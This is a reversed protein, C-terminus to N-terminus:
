NETPFAWQLKPIMSTVELSKQVKELQANNTQMTEFLGLTTAARLANPHEETRKM